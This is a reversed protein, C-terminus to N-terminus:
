SEYANEWTDLIREAHAHLCEFQERATRCNKYANHFDMLDGRLILLDTERLLDCHKEIPRFDVILINDNAPM